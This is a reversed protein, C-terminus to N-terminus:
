KKKEFVFDVAVPFHDSLFYTDEGNWIHADVVKKALEPSTFIFDIRENIRERIDANKSQGYLIPTPFTTRQSPLTYLRCVDIMPYALFHSIPSYDFAGNLLNTSNKGGYKEILKYAHKEMYEADFPSHSNMDGMLMFNELQQEKIYNVITQAEVTRKTTSGPNLHTVLVDLGYTQVHLLGHGCNELMKKKLVIPKKSTVGVPYGGEKVIMAYPHGWEKALTELKEQTINCLEELAMIEPDQKKVWEVMRARRETDKGWHFGNFINYSIVRVKEVNDRWDREYPLQAKLCGTIMLVALFLMSKKM